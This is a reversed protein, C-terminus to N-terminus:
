KRKKWKMEMKKTQPVEQLKGSNSGWLQLM